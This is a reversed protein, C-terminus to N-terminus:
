PRREHVGDHGRRDPGAAPSSVRAACTDGEDQQFEAMTSWHKGQWIENLVIRDDEDDAKKDYAKEESLEEPVLSLGNEQPLQNTIREIEAAAMEADGKAEHEQELDGPVLGHGNYQTRVNASSEQLMAERSPWHWRVLRRRERDLILQILMQRGADTAVILDFLSKQPTGYLGMADDLEEQLTNSLEEVIVEIDSRRRYDEGQVPNRRVLRERFDDCDAKLTYLRRGAQPDDEVWTLPDEGHPPVFRPSEEYAKIAKDLAVLKTDCRRYVAEAREELQPLNMTELEARLVKTEDVLRKWHVKRALYKLDAALESRLRAADAVAAREKLQPLKMTALEARLAELARVTQPRLAERAERALDKLDAALDSRLRAAEAEAARKRLKIVGDSDAWASASAEEAGAPKPPAPKATKILRKELASIELGELDKRRATLDKELLRGVFFTEKAGHNTEEDEMNTAAPPPWIMSRIRGSELMMGRAIANLAAAPRNKKGTLNKHTSTQKPADQGLLAGGRM